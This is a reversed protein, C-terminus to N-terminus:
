ENQTRRITQASAPSTPMGTIGSSRRRRAVEHSALLPVEGRRGGGHEAQERVRQRSQKSRQRSGRLERLPVFAFQRSAEVETSRSGERSKATRVAACRRSRWTGSSSRCSRFARWCGSSPRSTSGYERAVVAQLEAELRAESREVGIAAARTARHPAAGAFGDVAAGAPGGGPQDDSPRGDAPARRLEARLQQVARLSLAAARAPAGNAPLVAHAHDRRGAPVIAAILSLRNGVGSVDRYALRAREFGRTPCCSRARSAPRHSVTSRGSTSSSRSSMSARSRGATGGPRLQRSRGHRQARPRFACALRDHEGLPPFARALRELLTSTMRIAFPGSHAARHRGCCRDLRRSLRIPFADSAAVPDLADPLADLEASTRM